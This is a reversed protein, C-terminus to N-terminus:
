RNKNFHEALSRLAETDVITKKTETRKIATVDDSTPSMRKSSSMEKLAVGAEVLSLEKKETTVPASEYKKDMAEQLIDGLSRFPFGGISPEEMVPYIRFVGLRKGFVSVAVNGHRDVTEFSFVNPRTKDFSIIDTPQFVTVNEAVTFAGYGNKPKIERLSVSVMTTEHPLYVGSGMGISVSRTSTSGSFISIPSRLCPDGTGLHNIGAALLCQRLKGVTDEGTDDDVRDINDSEYVTFDASTRLVTELSELIELTNVYSKGGVNLAERATKRELRSMDQPLSHVKYFAVANALIDSVASYSFAVRRNYALPGNEYVAALPIAQRLVGIKDAHCLLAATELGVPLIQAANGDATANNNNDLFGLRLLTAAAANLESHDVSPLFDLELPSVGHGVCHMYLQTLPLRKIESIPHSEMTRPDTHGCIVFTSDRFRNTRGAQQDVNSKSLPVEQLSIAGSERVVTNVKHTGSSVGADVWPLNMGSELVDTGVLIKAVEATPTPAALARMRESYETTGHISAVEVWGCSGRSNLTNLIEKVTTEIDKIGSVFCLVGGSGTDILNIAAASVSSAPEWRRTCKFRQASEVTFVRPNFDKWYEVEAATDITASMIILREPGKGEVLRHKILARCVAIDMAPEHAEDMIIYNADNLMYGALGCGYTSFVVESNNNSGRPRRIEGRRGVAYDFKQGVPVGGAIVSLTEAANIALFRRPEFVFVRRNVDNFLAAPVLMTKGSATPANVISVGVKSHKIIGGLTKTIPLSSLASLIKYM